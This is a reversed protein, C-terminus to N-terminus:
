PTAGWSMGQVVAFNATRLTVVANRMTKNMFIFTRAKGEFLGVLLPFKVKTGITINPTIDM